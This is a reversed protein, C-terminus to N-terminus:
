IEGDEEAEEIFQWGQNMWFSNDIGHIWVRELRRNDDLVVGSVQGTILCVIEGDVSKMISVEDGLFVQMM